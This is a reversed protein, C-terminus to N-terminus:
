VFFLSFWLGALWCFLLGVFWLGYGWLGVFWKGLVKARRFVRLRNFIHVYINIKRKIRGVTM